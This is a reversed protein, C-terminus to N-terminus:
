IRDPNPASAHLSVASPRCPPPHVTSISVPKVFGLTGQVALCQSTPV